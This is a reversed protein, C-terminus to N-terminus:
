NQNGENGGSVEDGNEIGNGEFEEAEALVKPAPFYVKRILSIVEEKEDESLPDAKSLVEIIRGDDQFLMDMRRQGQFYGRSDLIHADGLAQMMVAMLDEYGNGQDYFAPIIKEKLEEFKVGRPKLRDSFAPDYYLGAYLIKEVDEDTMGEEKRFYKGFQSQSKVGLADYMVQM